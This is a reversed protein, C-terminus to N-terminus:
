EDREYFQPMYRAVASRNAAWAYCSDLFRPRQATREPEEGARLAAERYHAWLTQMAVTAVGFLVERLHTCGRVGGLHQSLTQRWREGLKAGVLSQCASASDGCLSFPTARMDVEVARVVMDNNITVRAAIDHIPTGPQLLGREMDHYPEANEDRLVAEIDWLGDNRRYSQYTVTRRHSLSRAAPSSWPM